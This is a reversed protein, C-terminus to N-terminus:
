PSGAGARRPRGPRPRRRWPRRWRSARGRVGATAVCWRPPMLVHALAGALATAVALADAARQGPPLLPIAWWRVADPPDVGVFWVVVPLGLLLGWPPRGAVAVALLALGDFLALNRAIVARDVATAALVLAASGAVAAVFAARAQWAPRGAVWAWPAFRAMAGVPIALAALVPSLPWVVTRVDPRGVVRVPEIPLVRAAVIVALAGALLATGGQARVVAVTATLRGRV